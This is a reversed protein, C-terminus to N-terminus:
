YQSSEYVDRDRSRSWYECSEYVHRNPNAGRKLLEEV